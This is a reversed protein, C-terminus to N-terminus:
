ISNPVTVQAQDLHTSAPLTLESTVNQLEQDLASSALTGLIGSPSNVRDTTLTLQGNQIGIKILADVQASRGAISVAGTLHVLNGSAQAQFGSPLPLGAYPVLGTVDLHGVTGGRAAASSTAFPAISVNRLQASVNLLRVPQGGQGVTLSPVSVDIEQYSGSAWQTLFPVGQFEVKAPAGTQYNATVQESVLRDAQAVGVRDGVALVAAILLVAGALKKM